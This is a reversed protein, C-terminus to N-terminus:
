CVECAEDLSSQKLITATHLNNILAFIRLWLLSDLPWVWILKTRWGNWLDIRVTIALNLDKILGLRILGWVMLSGATLISLICRIWGFINGSTPLPPPEDLIERLIYTLSTKEMYRQTSCWMERNRFTKQKEALTYPGIKRTVYVAMVVYM